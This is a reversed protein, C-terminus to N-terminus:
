KLLQLAKELVKDNQSSIIYYGDNGWLQKALLSKIRINLEKISSDKFILYKKDVGNAICYNIFNDYDSSSFNYQNRFNIASTYKSFEDKNKVYFNNTYENLLNLSLINIVLPNFNSTDLAVFIDPSIGGNAFVKRKKIKTYFIDEKKHKVTDTSKGFLEGSLYRDQLDSEYHMLNKDYPKQICRGSPTYYKAITLRLASGDSLTYQDQVLGKGYSRRGVLIGRDWDQIAGSLIESASASGEDILVIVQGQEFIGPKRSKYTQKPFHKGETYVILKDGDLIEDAINVAQQLYGGTNQRVDLILNKAGNKVLPELKKMFEEYTTESFSNIKIYATNDNLMIGTAVSYIPIKDRIINFTLVKKSSNRWIAVKVKSGKPGKLYKMVDLNTIGIGAVNKDNIKIIKDGAMIGISASPGGQIPSVIQITDKFIQFEVGIGEFGGSLEENANNIDSVPIYVSHPDLKVLLEEIAKDQLDKDIDSVYNANILQLIQDIKGNASIHQLTGNNNQSNKIFYGLMVGAALLISGFLPYWYKFKQM